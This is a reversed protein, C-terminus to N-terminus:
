PATVSFPLDGRTIHGDVALVQWRLTYVGPALVLKAAVLNPPGDPLIPVVSRSTDPHTLTLRSRVRDIRSNYRLTITVSGARVSGGAPPASDEIIAHAQATRAAACLMPATLLCLLVRRLM